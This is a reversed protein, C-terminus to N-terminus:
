RVAVKTDTGSSAMKKMISMVEGAYTPVVSPPNYTELIGRVDKGEYAYAIGEHNGSIAKGVTEISEEFTGFFIKCSGYGFANKNQKGDRKTKCLHKGGTTERMAIAPLLYPDLDYKHAVEVFVEGYGALPLDWKSFYADINEAHMQSVADLSEEVIDKESLTIQLVEAVSPLVPAQGAFSIPLNTVLLPMAIFAHLTTNFVKTINKM